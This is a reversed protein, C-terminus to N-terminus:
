DDCAVTVSFEAVPVSGSRILVNYDGDPRGTTGRVAQGFPAATTSRNTRGEFEVIYVKASDSANLFQFLVYGNGDRCANIVQVEDAGIVAPDSDCSVTVTQNSIEVGDRLVRVEFDRDPRGTIPIRGWDDPLVTIQRASLGEFELRYTAEEAGTNVFNTDVRGNGALCSVVHTLEVPSQAGPIPPGPPPEVVCDITVTEDLVILDDRTVTVTRDGNDFNGITSSFAENPFLTVASDFVGDVAVDYDVVDAFPNVFDLTLEGVEDVCATVLTAEPTEGVVNVTLSTGSASDGSNAGNGNASVGAAWLQVAASSAPATWEFEFTASSNTLSKPSVHTLEAGANRVTADIPALVGASRTVSANFGAISGSGGAVTVSFTATEGATMTTPGDITVTPTPNDASHCVACTTGGTSPNGSYGSIGASRASVPDAGFAFLVSLAIAIGAVAAVVGLTARNTM